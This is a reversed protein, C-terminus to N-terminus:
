LTKKQLHSKLGKQSCTHYVYLIGFSAVILMIFFSVVKFAVERQEEPTLVRDVEEQGPLLPAAAVPASAIASAV